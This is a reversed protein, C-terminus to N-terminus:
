FVNHGPEPGFKLVPIRKRCVILSKEKAIHNNGVIDEAPALTALMIGNLATYQQKHGHM